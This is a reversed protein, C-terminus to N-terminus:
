TLRAKLLDNLSIIDTTPWNKLSIGVILKNSICKTICYNHNVIYIEGRHCKCTLMVTKHKM